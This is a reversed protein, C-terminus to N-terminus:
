RIGNYWVVQGNTSVQVVASGGSKDQLTIFWRGYRFDVSRLVPRVCGNTAAFAKAVAVVARGDEPPILEPTSGSFYRWTIIAFLSIALLIFALIGTSKTAFAFSEGNARKM